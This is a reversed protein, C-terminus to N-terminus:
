FAVEPFFDVNNGPLLFPLRTKQQKWQKQPKTGRGKDRPWSDTHFVRFPRHRRLETWNPWRLRIPAAEM